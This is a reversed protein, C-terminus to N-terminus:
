LAPNLGMLNLLQETDTLSAMAHDAGASRLQDVSFGGTAVAISQANIARAAAIDSPTDGILFRRVFSQGTLLGPFVRQVALQAIAKRDAHEHGFAGLEFHDHLGCAELKLWACPEINGTVLGLRTDTRRTLASLLERVGSYVRPPEAELASKLLPPLLNFFYDCEPQTLTHGRRAAIRYILDLDTAGAFSINKADAGWGFVSELASAFARRGAGSTDLLTGDIDFLALTLAGTNRDVPM